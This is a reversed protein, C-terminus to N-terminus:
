EIKLLSSNGCYKMYDTIVYRYTPLVQLAREKGSHTTAITYVSHLSFTIQLKNHLGTVMDVLVSQSKTTVLQVHCGPSCDTYHSVVTQAAQPELVLPLLIKKVQLRELRRYVPYQTEKQPPLCEAAPVQCEGGGVWDLVM